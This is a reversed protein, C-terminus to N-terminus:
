YLGRLAAVAARLAEARQMNTSGPVGANAWASKEQIKLDKQLNRVDQVLWKASNRDMTMSKASVFAELRVQSRFANTGNAKFGYSSNVTSLAKAVQSRQTSPDAVIARAWQQKAHSVPRFIQLLSTGINMPPYGCIPYTM